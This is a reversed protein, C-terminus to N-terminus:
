AARDGADGEVRGTDAGDHARGGANTPPNYDLVAVSPVGRNPPRDTVASDDVVYLGMARAERIVAERREPLIIGRRPGGRVIDGAQELRRVIQRMYKASVLDAGLAERIEGQSPGVGYDAIYSRVFALAQLKRSVMTPSLRYHTGM